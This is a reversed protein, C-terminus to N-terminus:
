YIPFVGRTFAKLSCWKIYNLIVKKLHKIKYNAILVKLQTCLFEARDTRWVHVHVINFSLNAKDKLTQINNEMQIILNNKWLVIM